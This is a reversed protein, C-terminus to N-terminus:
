GSKTGSASSISTSYTYCMGVFRDNAVVGGIKAEDSGVCGGCAGRAKGKDTTM